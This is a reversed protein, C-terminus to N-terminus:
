TEPFVRVTGYVGDYGPEIFVDGARVRAVGDAVREGAVEAIESSPAETLVSLETGFHSVLGFYAAQAKKTNPGCRLSEAIIQRLAILKKFPPRRKAGDAPGKGTRDPGAEQGALEDVRQMVGLTLPRGCKPCRHGNRSVEAPSLRVGCKRHGSYHYKGEQPFFEVTSDISQTMLSRMLGDYSPAGPLVTLERGLNPLSHADSFSVISVDDLWPVRWNMAPDSSLGSEIAHVYGSLDGFCEELSDFGSKSGFLGFWPTWAHAPVVMCRDDIDLVTELLDRPSVHLTPRGDGALNGRGALAANIREVTRFSPAFLLMHVRRSRGGQEAICNVEAGLIFTVGGHEFLGDGADRLKRRSERAWVPHTFDGSSLLDIGKLGAWRALNEFTLQRSTGRSHPSHVHLDAVYSM